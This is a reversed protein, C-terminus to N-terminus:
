VSSIPMGAEDAIAWNRTSDVTSPPSVLHVLRDGRGLGERRKARLVERLLVPGHQRRVILTTRSTHRVVVVQDPVVLLLCYPARQAQKQSGRIAM